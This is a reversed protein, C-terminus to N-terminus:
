ELKLQVNRPPTIKKSMEEFQSFVSSDAHPLGARIACQLGSRNLQPSAIQALISHAGRAEAQQLRTVAASVEDNSPACESEDDSVACGDVQLGREWRM